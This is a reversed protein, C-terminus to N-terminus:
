SFISAGGAFPEYYYLYQPIHKLIFKRDYFKGDAYCFLSNIRETM